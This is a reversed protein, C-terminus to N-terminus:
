AAPELMADAVLDLLTDTDGLESEAQRAHRFYLPMDHEECYGVGGLVQHALRVAERYAGNTWAKARAIEGIDDLGEDIAAAARYTIRRASEVSTLINVCHHQIAQFAGIPQGFQRREKAHEVALELARQAGGVMEASKIVGAKVLARQLDAGALPRENLCADTGLTVQDCDLRCYDYGSISQLPTITLGPHDTPALFLDYGAEGECAPTAILVGDASGAAPVLTKGGSLQYGTSTRTASFTMAELDFESHGEQIALTLVQEGTALQPLIESRAREVALENICLTATVASPFFPGRTCARGLEELLLCMSLFGFELGGQEEGVLIAPWGFEVIQNWLQGRGEIPAALVERASSDSIEDLFKRASDRLMQQEDSLRIRKM